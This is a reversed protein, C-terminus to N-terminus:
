KKRKINIAIYLNNLDIKPINYYGGWKRKKGGRQLHYAECNMRLSDSSYESM